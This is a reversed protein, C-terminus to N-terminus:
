SALSDALKIRDKLQRKALDLTKINADIIRYQYISQVDFYVRALNVKQKCKVDKKATTIARSSSATEEDFGLQAAAKMPDSAVFGNKKMCASWLENVKKIRSDNLAASEANRQLNFVYMLDVSDPTRAYLKLFSERTCGGIPVRRGNFKQESGGQKDAEEQSMPLDELTLDNAGSLAVREAESLPAAGERQPLTAVKRGYGHRAAIEMDLIGFVGAHRSDMSIATKERPTYKFGLREMCQETLAAQARDFKEQERESAQYEDLPFRLGETTLIAPATVQNHDTEDSVPGRASCSVLLASICAVLASRTFYYSCSSRM